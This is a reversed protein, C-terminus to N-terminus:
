KNGMIADFSVKEESVKVREVVWDVTQDELVLQRIEDLRKQDSYYWSIVDQSREYSQAMDEIVARVRAEDVQISNTQIIESLILGLAIRRRAQAEFTDMPLDLDELNRNQKKANEAYPKILQDVEQDVLSKPLTLSINAYLSDMVANKLNNRLAQSLEREMNAKVDDRFAKMDGDTIGFEKIFDPDIQPLSAGEVKFVTVEFDAPKGALKPNGYQEPFTVSFTKVDGASLGILNDEFGPIMQNSGIEVAADEVKGGTFNEGESVGSFGITIRDNQQAPREVVSWTKRQNRIKEIMGDLDAEDVSAVKRAVEIKEIGQLSIEPYVEFEATYQFGEAENAPQIHPYSVPRLNQEQLAELYTSQILDGTIEDRVRDKFLKKVVHQPVKGPRFGDLKVERALSKFRNEMKEKIVEEPVSVTMRRSLESTKEVSVQM